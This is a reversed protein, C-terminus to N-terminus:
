EAWGVLRQESELQRASAEAVLSFVSQRFAAQTQLYLKRLCRPNCKEEPVRAEHALGKIAQSLAARTVPEGSSSCFLPGDTLRRQLAYAALEQQLPSPLPTGSGPLAGCQVDKFSLALLAPLRAGTLVITKILLYERERGSHRAASLLRLYESRSLEPQLEEQEELRRGTLLDKRNLWSVLGDAASILVNITKPTYGRVLLAQAVASVTGPRLAKDPPLNDYLLRLRGSYTQRTSDSLDTRSAVFADMLSPTLVLGDM